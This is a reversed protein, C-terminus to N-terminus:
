YSNNPRMAIYYYLLITRMCLLGLYRFSHQGSHCHATRMRLAVYHHLFYYATPALLRFGLRCLVMQELNMLQYETYAASCVALMGSLGPV